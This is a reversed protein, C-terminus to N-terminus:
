QELVLKLVINLQLWAYVVYFCTLDTSDQIDKGRLYIESSVLKTQILHFM